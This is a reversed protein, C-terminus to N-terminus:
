AIRLLITCGQRRHPPVGRPKGLAAADRHIELQGFAELPQREVGLRREEPDDLFRQGVDMPVRLAPGRADPKQTVVVPREHQLDVISAPAYRACRQREEHLTAAAGAHADDAHALPDLLKAPM